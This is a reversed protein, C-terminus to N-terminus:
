TRQGGVGRQSTAAAGDRIPESTMDLGSHHPKISNLDTQAPSQPRIPAPRREGTLRANALRLLM